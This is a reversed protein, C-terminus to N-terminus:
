MYARLYCNWKEIVALFFFLQFNRLKCTILKAISSFKEFHKLVNRKKCVVYALYFTSASLRYYYIDLLSILVVLKCEHCQNM